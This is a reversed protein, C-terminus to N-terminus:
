LDPGAQPLDITCRPPSQIRSPAPARAALVPCNQTQLPPIRLARRLTKCRLQRSQLVRCKAAPHRRPRTPSSDTNQPPARHLERKRGPAGVPPTERKAPLGDQYNARPPLAPEALPRPLSAPRARARYWDAPPNPPDPSPP